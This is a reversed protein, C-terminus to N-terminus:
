RQAVTADTPRRLPKSDAWGLAMCPLRKAPSIVPKKTDKQTPAVVDAGALSVAGCRQANDLGRPFAAGAGLSTSSSM